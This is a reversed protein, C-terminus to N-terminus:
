HLYNWFCRTYDHLWGSREAELLYGLRGWFEDCPYYRLEAILRLRGSACVEENPPVIM